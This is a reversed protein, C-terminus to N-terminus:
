ELLSSLTICIQSQGETTILNPKASQGMGSLIRRVTALDNNEIRANKDCFFSCIMELYGVSTEPKNNEDQKKGAQERYRFEITPEGANTVAVAAKDCILWLLTTMLDEFDDQFVIFRGTILEADWRLSFSKSRSQFAIKLSDCIEECKSRLKDGSIKRNEWTLGKMESSMNELVRRCQTVQTIIEMSLKGIQQRSLANGCISEVNVGISSLLSGAKCNTDFLLSRLFINTERFKHAHALEAVAREEVGKLHKAHIDAKEKKVLSKYFAIIIAKFYETANYSQDEDANSGPTATNTSALRKSVFGDILGNRLYGFNSRFDKGTTAVVAMEKNLACERIVDLGHQPHPQGEASEPIHLDVVCVQYQEQQLAKLAENKNRAIEADFDWGWEVQLLKRLSKNDTASGTILHAGFYYQLAEYNAKTDEVFLVKVGKVSSM